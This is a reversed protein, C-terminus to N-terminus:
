YRFCFQVVSIGGSDCWKGRLDGKDKDKSIFSTQCSTKNARDVLLTKIQKRNIKVIAFDCHDPKPNLLKINDALELCIDYKNTPLTV